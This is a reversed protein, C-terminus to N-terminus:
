KSLYKERSNDKRYSSPTTGTWKRFIKAFYAQSEFGTELGIDIISMNTATLLHKAEVIRDYQIYEMLSYGTSKKFIRNIYDRNLHVMKEIRDRTIVENYHADIYEKVQEVANKDIDGIDKSGIVLAKEEDIKACAERLTEELEQFSVPKLLYKYVGLSIASRAYNFDPHGTLIITVVEPYIKQLWEIFDLGSQGPLEIDCVAIDVQHDQLLEQAAEANYATLVERFGLKEWPVTRKLINVMAVEDDLLLVNM